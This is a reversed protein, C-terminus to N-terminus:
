LIFDKAAESASPEAQPAAGGGMKDLNFSTPPTQGDGVPKNLYSSIKELTKEIDEGKSLENVLVPPVQMSLIEQTIPTDPHKLNYEAIAKDRMEQMAKQEAEAQSKKLEEQFKKKAQEELENMKQRWLEPNEFKLAQLEPTEPVEWTIKDAVSALQAELAQIRAQAQLLKSQDAKAQELQQSLDVSM